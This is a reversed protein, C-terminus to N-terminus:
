PRAGCLDARHAQVQRDNPEIPARDRDSIWAETRGNALSVTVFTGRLDHVRIRIRETTSMFLEPREIKLGLSELHARLITPLGFGIIPAGQEDVFVLDSPRAGRKARWGKLVAVVGASLAWVRPDDTKNRDLRVAGRELDLDAFTLALAEGERMGERALFGWLLRYPLPVTTCAMLRRDEDPYLYALAKPQRSKPLFGSPIPTREILRLPYVAMNFLRVVAQGVNRRTLPSMDAPLKRMVEECHDLTITYILKAGLLPYVHKTLRSVDDSATRKKKIQDPLDGRDVETRDSHVPPPPTPVGQL